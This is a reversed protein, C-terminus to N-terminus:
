LRQQIRPFIENQALDIWELEAGTYDQWAALLPRFVLNHLNQNNLGMFTLKQGKFEGPQVNVKTPELCLEGVKQMDQETPSGANAGPIKLIQTRISDQALARQYSKGAVGFAYMGAAAGTASKLVTRRNIRGRLFTDNLNTM